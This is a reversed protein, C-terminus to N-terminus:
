AIERDAGIPISVTGPVAYEAHSSYIVIRNALHSLVRKCSGRRRISIWISSPSTSFFWRRM